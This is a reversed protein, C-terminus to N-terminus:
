DERKKKHAGWVLQGNRPEAWSYEKLYGVNPDVWAKGELIHYLDCDVRTKQIIKKKGQSSIVDRIGAAELAKMLQYFTVRYLTKTREDEGREPWLCAIAEGATVGTAGHDVILAFLEEKKGGLSLAVDDVWVAFRPMTQIRVHNEPEPLLREALDLAEQIEETTYPKLIYGLAKVGFADLAYQKYATVFFLRLDRNKERLKHALEIGKMDPMEIDLFATDVPHVAAWQLATESDGLLTLNKIPALKAAKAKFTELAPREDDVYVVNM